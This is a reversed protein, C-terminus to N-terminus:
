EFKGCLITYNGLRYQASMNLCINGMQENSPFFWYNSLDVDECRSGNARKALDVERNENVITKGKQANTKRVRIRVNSDKKEAVRRDVIYVLKM